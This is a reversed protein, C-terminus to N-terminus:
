ATLGDHAAKRALRLVARYRVITRSSCGLRDAAQRGSLSDGGIHLYEDIGELLRTLPGISHREVEYGIVSLIADQGPDSGDGDTRQNPMAMVQKRFRTWGHM